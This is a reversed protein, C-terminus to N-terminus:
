MASLVLFPPSRADPFHRLIPLLVNAFEPIQSRFTHDLLRRKRQLGAIRCRVGGRRHGERGGKIARPKGERGKGERGKGAGMGGERGEKGPTKRM